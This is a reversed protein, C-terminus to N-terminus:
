VMENNRYAAKDTLSPIKGRSLESESEAGTKSEKGGAKNVPLFQNTLAMITNVWSPAFGKMATAVKGSLTLIAEPEGYELAEIIRDASVEVDQSSLPHSDSYKFWAYEKEHDGKVTVNRPSGTRMLNPVVTTVHINKNKLEAHMGESLGMLAFKSATYPLLHPLAIKGGISTINVIRGSKQQLFYPLVSHIGYLPGWFNTNMADEYDSIEMTEAPGVQIIGANNILVDIRGYQSIVEEVMSKVQERKTIDTTITLVDSGKSHLETKANSLEEESRACIAIRAGKAALQRTLELGLGRSGGTILVVKGSLRFKSFERYISGAAVVLGAGAAVYTLLEERSIKKKKKAKM